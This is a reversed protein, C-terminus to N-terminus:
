SEVRDGWYGGRRKPKPPEPDPEKKPPETPDGAKKPPEPDGNGKEAMLRDYEAAKEEPSLEKVPTREVRKEIRELREAVQKRHDTAELRDLLREAADESARKGKVESSETDFVEFNNEGAERIDYPM